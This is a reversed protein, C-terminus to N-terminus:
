CVQQAQAIAAWFKNGMILGRGHGNEEWDICHTWVREDRLKSWHEASGYLPM